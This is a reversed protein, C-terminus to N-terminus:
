SPTETVKWGMSATSWPKRPSDLDKLIKSIDYFTEEQKKKNNFYIFICSTFKYGSTELINVQEMPCDNLQTNFICTQKFHKYLQTASKDM